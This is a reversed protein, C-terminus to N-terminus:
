RARPAIPAPAPKIILADNGQTVKMQPYVQQIRPLWERLDLHQVLAHGSGIRNRFAHIELDSASSIREESGLSHCHEFM